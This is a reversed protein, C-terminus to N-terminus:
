LRFVQREEHLIWLGTKSFSKEKYAKQKRKEIITYAM